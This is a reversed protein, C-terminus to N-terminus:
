FVVKTDVGYEKKLIKGHAIMPSVVPSLYPILQPYYIEILDNASPCCTTIINEMKGEQLLKAYEETVLVAGEATERVDTFGLKKLAAQVQGITDYS